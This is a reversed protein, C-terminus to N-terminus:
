SYAHNRLTATIDSVADCVARALWITTPPLVSMNEREYFNVLECLEGAMEEAKNIDINSAIASRMKEVIDWIFDILMSISAAVNEPDSEQMNGRVGQRSQVSESQTYFLQVVM